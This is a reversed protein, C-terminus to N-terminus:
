VEGRLSELQFPQDHIAPSCLCSFVGELVESTGAGGNLVYLYQLNELRLLIFEIAPIVRGASM